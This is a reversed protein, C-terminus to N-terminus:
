ASFGLKVAIERQRAVLTLITLDSPRPSVYLACALHWHDAGRLYGTAGIRLFEPTLPRNPFIRSVWSLLDDAGAEVAERKLTARLEM